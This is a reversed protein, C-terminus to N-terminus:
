GNKKKKKKLNGLHDNPDFDAVIGSELGEQIAYKLAKLKEEEAELLRLGARVVESANNYRGKAISSEIFEEFHEGLSISTNRGM